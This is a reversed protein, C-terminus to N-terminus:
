LRWVFWKVRLAVTADGAAIVQKLKKRECDAQEAKGGEFHLRTKDRRQVFLWRDAREKANADWERCRRECGAQLMMRATVSKRQQGEM